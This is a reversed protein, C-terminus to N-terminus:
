SQFVDFFHLIENKTFPPPGKDVHHRMRKIVTVFLQYQGHKSRNKRVGSGSNCHQSFLSFLILIRELLMTIRPGPFEVMKYQPLGCIGGGLIHVRNKQMKKSSIPFHRITTTIQDDFFRLPLFFYTWVRATDLKKCSLLFFADDHRSNKQVIKTNKELFWHHKQTKGM